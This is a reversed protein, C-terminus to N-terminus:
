PAPRRLEAADPAASRAETRRLFDRVVARYRAPEELHPMHSSEEFVALESGPVLRHFRATEEPRTLDHRGCTFLTPVAVETLRSTLDDDKHVGTAVFESPGWMTGYVVPNLQDFSRVLAEPWPDLRCMHRHYFATTAAGYEESDTTGAAEHRDLTARVEEPLAARLAALGAIYGPSSLCPGALILSALRAPQRLAYTAAIVTGWSHGLLHVRDVALADVVRGVEDVFRDNHWLRVDDPKESRGAGLQDYFVVPREDALGALPELYDHLAGPGGHVTVLPAAGAAGVIRYWIRGGPVALSGERSPYTSAATATAAVGSGGIQWTGAM